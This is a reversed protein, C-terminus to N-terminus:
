GTTVPGSHGSKEPDGSAAARLMAIARGVRGNPGDWWEGSSVRVELVSVEPDDKGDFYIGAAPNWLRDIVSRDQHIRAEGSVSVWSNAGPDAFAVLVQRSSEMLEHVWDSGFAVLFRLTHEDHELMTLPRATLAEGSITTVMAFRLDHLAADLSRAEEADSDTTPRSTTSDAM